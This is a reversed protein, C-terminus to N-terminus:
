QTEGWSFVNWGGSPGNQFSPSALGTEYFIKAGNHASITKGVASDISIGGGLDVTGSQACVAIAGSGNAVTLANGNSDTLNCGSGGACANTTVVFLYSGTAGSGTYSGGKLVVQGDSIITASYQNYNAPLKVTSGGSVTVTGVVYITGTLTLTGGGDVILNGNIKGPGFTGNAWDVHCDGNSYGGHCKTSGTIVGGATGEAKWSDINEQTFPMPM